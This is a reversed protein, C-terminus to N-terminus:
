QYKSMFKDAKKMSDYLGDEDGQSYMNIKPRVPHQLYYLVQSMVTRMENMTKRIEANDNPQSADPVTAAVQEVNGSDFTAMGRATAYGTKGGYKEYNALYKILEPENMMIARTTERGVVIEPGNEAVLAPQGQVTTAIPHTVLGDKPQAEETATYVKGDQGIFRHVNGEKYTLMGSALKVKPTASAKATDQNATSQASSLLGMLVATIVGILPIGWFGLAAITKAAGESVGFMAMIAAIRAEKAVRVADHINQMTELTTNTVGEAAIRAAGGASEIATLASQHAMAQAEFTKYFLAQQLKKTLNESMMKLTLKAYEIGMNKAMQGFTLKGDRSIGQWMEGLMTGVEEGWANLPESLTQIKSIREAVESSVKEALAASEKLMENQKEMILEQSANNAKLDELERARWEIHNMIKQIEPDDDLSSIIGAERGLSTWYGSPDGQIKRINAQTDLVTDDSEQQAEWGMAQWREDFKRKEHEYNQKLAKYYDADMDILTEYFAQMQELYQNPNEMWEDLNPFMSAFSERIKNGDEDVTHMLADIMNRLELADDEDVGFFQRADMKVTKNALAQVDRTNAVIETGDALQKVVKDYGDTILGLTVLKDGFKRQAQEVYEYQLLIKDVEQQIAAQRRQINLENQAANKRISNLYANSDLKYVEASGNYKQLAAGQKAPEAEQIRKIAERSVESDRKVLDGELEMKIKDWSNKDGVIARRAELLMQDKRDQIHKILMEFDKGELQGNAALENAAAEQLRYFEEISAIVAKTAKEANEKEDKMWKPAKAEKETTTDTTGGGGGGGGGAPEPTANLSRIKDKLKEMDADVGKIDNDINAIAKETGEYEEIIKPKMAAAGRRAIGAEPFGAVVRTAEETYDQQNKYERKGAEYKGKNEDRWQEKKAKEDEMEMRKNELEEIKNAYARAQASRFIEETLDRYASAAATALDKENSLQKYYQNYKDDGVMKRLAEKREEISKTQDKTADYLKKLEVRQKRSETEANEEAERLVDLKDAAEKSAKAMDYLKAGILSLATIALVWVNSRLVANLKGANTTAATMAANMINVEITVYRIAKAVGFFFLAKTLQPLIKLLNSVVWAIMELSTKVGTLWNTSETLQKTLNYWGEALQKITDVGEPNVFANQWMNNAREMIGEATAQVLNFEETISVAEAFAENSTILHERFTDINKSFAGFTLFMKSGESGLAKFADELYRLDGMEHMRQFIAMLGEIARGEDFFKDLTGPVMNLIKEIEATNTRYAALFKTFATASVEASVGFSDTASGLALIEDTTLGIMQASPQIRRAFEVINKGVATTTQSLENISSGIAMMSKEVGMKQILGLNEALKALPTIAEDVSAGLDEGLAVQLQNAARVFGEVGELRYKGLGMKGASYALENLQTLTTRTDFKALNFNLQKIEDSMLGTVKQVQVMSDSLSLNDRVMGQIKNKLFGAVAFVGMYAGINKLATNWLKAFGTLEGKAKSIEKQLSKMDRQVSEIARKEGIPISALMSELQDYAQQLETINYKRKNQIRDLLQQETLLVSQMDKMRQKLQDQAALNRQIHKVDGSAYTKYQEQLHKLAAELDEYSAKEMNALTQHTRQGQQAFEIRRQAEEDAEKAARAAEREAEARDKILQNAKQLRDLADKSIGEFGTAGQTSMYLNRLRSQEARLQEDTMTQLPVSGAKGYQNVAIQAEYQRAMGKLGARDSESLKANTELEKNIAALGQELKATPTNVLDSLQAKAKELTMGMERNQKMWDKFKEIFGNIKALDKHDGPMADRLKTLERTAKGLDTTATHAMEKMYHNVRELTPILDEEAAHLAELNKRAQKWEASDPKMGKMATATQEAKKRIQELSSEVEKGDLSLKVKSFKLDAM